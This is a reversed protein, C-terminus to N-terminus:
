WPAGYTESILVVSYCLQSIFPELQKRAVTDLKLAILTKPLKKGHEWNGFSYKYFNGEFWVHRELLNTFMAVLM